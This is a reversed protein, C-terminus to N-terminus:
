FRFIGLIEMMWAIGLHIILGGWVSRTNYVIVGLIIGGFYSSICEALPKGFHIACYFVAMPLIANKGVYRIFALILFGRFFLEITFFDSGYALEYLLYFPVPTNTEDGVFFVNKLKPYVNAFSDTFAPILLIPISMILLLWYPKLGGPNRALGAVPLPYKGWKWIIAIITIMVLAKMPWHLMLQWYDASPNAFLSAAWEPLYILTMKLAFLAPSIVLLLYFFASAPPSQKSSLYHIFYSSSFLFLFLSFYGAFRTIRHDAAYLIEDIGAYYNLFVTIGLLLSTLFFTRSNLTKLYDLLYRYVIKM